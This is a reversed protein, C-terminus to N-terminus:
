LVLSLVQSCVKYCSSLLRRGKMSSFSKCAQCYSCTGENLQLFVVVKPSRVNNEDPFVEFPSLLLGGLIKNWTVCIAGTHGQPNGGPYILQPIRVM